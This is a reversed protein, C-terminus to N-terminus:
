GKFNPNPRGFVMKPEKGGGIPKSQWRDLLKHNAPDRRMEDVLAPNARRAAPTYYVKELKSGTRDLTVDHWKYSNGSGTKRGVAPPTMRPKGRMGALRADSDSPPAPKTPDHKHGPAGPHKIVADDYDGDADVAELWQRSIRRDIESALPESAKLVHASPIPYVHEFTKCLEWLGVDSMKEFVDPTPVVDAKAFRILTDLIDHM